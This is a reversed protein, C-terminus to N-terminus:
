GNRRGRAWSVFIGSFCLVSFIIFLLKVSRMFLPHTSPIIDGDGIFLHIILTAVGLSMMQGTLRMSGLTASAIGTQQKSVSGMVSNTNPSSFLGFGSGMIALSVGIFINSTSESVLTLMVLGVVTISMGITSLVRPDIKDSWRGSFTSFITMLVPQSILLIGTEAPSMGKIYQLYLSLIFSIAATTAYNIFASLNAFAFIRNIKFLSLDMVPFKHHLEIYIFIFLLIISLSTLIIAHQEPLQSFGTIFASIAIMYVFSGKVDFGALKAKINDAPLFIVTLFIVTLEFPILIFFISRWGLSQTLFGGIVPAISLGLYVAATSIGLAKGREGQPFINTLIALSTAYIMAGGVGQIARMIVLLSGSDSIGCFLSTTLIIINGWIFIRKRGLLDSLKGFPVLFIASTLLYSMITWSLKVANMSLETGIAPLAINIASSLFSSIFSTFGVAYLMMTKSKKTTEM